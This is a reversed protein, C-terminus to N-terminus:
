PCSPHLPRVEVDHVPLPLGAVTPRRFRGRAPLRRRHHRLLVRGRQGLLVSRYRRVVLSYRGGGPDARRRRLRSARTRDGRRDGRLRGRAPLPPRGRGPDHPRRRRRAGTPPVSTRRGDLPPLPQRRRPVPVRPRDADDDANRVYATVRYDSWQGPQDPHGADLNSDPGLILLSGPKVADTGDITGGWINTTQTVYRTVPAATEAIQWSSPGQNTGQDVVQWRGLTGSPGAATTGVAIAAFTEHLLLPTLYAEHLAEPELVQEAAGANLKVDKPIASLDIVACTSTNVIELWRIDTADFTTTDVAGWENQRVILRGAADRIPVHNNDFLYLGLDRGAIRYMLDVYDEDFAVGVDYARYVPKPLLAKEGPPPVTAPVTQRVYRTLDELGSEFSAPNPHGVPVSLQALGPPGETRFYGIETQELADSWGALEGEGNAEARTLLTLRYATNPELVAGVQSWQATASQLHQELEQREQEDKPDPGFDACVRLVRFTGRGRLVVASIAAADIVIHGDVPLFPGAQTGDPFSVTASVDGDGIGATCLSAIRAGGAPTAVVVTVIGPGELTLEDVEPDTATSQASAVKRGQADFGEVDVADGQRVLTVLVKGAAVPIAVETRAGADLCRVGALERVVAVPEQSGQADFVTFTLGHWTFRNALEGLSHAGFDACVTTGPGAILQVDVHRAPRRLAVDLFSEPFFVAARDIGDVPPDVRAVNVLTTPSCVLVMDPSCVHPFDPSAGPAYRTFDCCISLGPADPICPYFPYHDTFWEDWSGSTGRTYDFANKSWLWLKLQGVSDTGGFGPVPAWSGYLEPVDPPNATDAKRAVMSWSGGALKELTVARLSYKVTAPGQDSSPDGIREAPPNPPQPNNGVLAADHVPRGFTIHPRSDLPVVPM